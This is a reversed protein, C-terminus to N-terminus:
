FNRFVISGSLLRLANDRGKKTLTPRIIALGRNVIHAGLLFAGQAATIATGCQQLSGSHARGTRAEESRPIMKVTV